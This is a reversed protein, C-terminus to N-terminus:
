FIGVESSTLSPRFIKCWETFLNVLRKMMFVVKMTRGYPSAYQPIDDPSLGRREDEPLQLKQQFGEYSMAQSEPCIAFIDPQALIHDM